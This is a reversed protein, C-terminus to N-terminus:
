EGGFFKVLLTRRRSSSRSTRAGGSIVAEFKERATSAIDRKKETPKKGSYRASKRADRSRRFRSRKAAVAAPALNKLDANDEFRSFLFISRVVSLQLFDPRHVRNEVTSCLAFKFYFFSNKENCHPLMSCAWSSIHFAATSSDGLFADVQVGAVVPAATWDGPLPLAPEGDTALLAGPLTLPDQVKSKESPSDDSRPTFGQKQSIKKRVSDINNNCVLVLLCTGQAGTVVRRPHNRDRRRGSTLNAAATGVDVQPLEQLLQELTRAQVTGAYAPEVSVLAHELDLVRDPHGSEPALALVTRGHVVVLEAAAYPLVVLLADHLLGLSALPQDILKAM